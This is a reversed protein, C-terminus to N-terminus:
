HLIAFLCFLLTKPSVSVLTVQFWAMGKIDIKGPAPSYMPNKSLNSLSSLGSLSRGCYVTQLQRLYQLQRVKNIVVLKLAISGGGLLGSMGPLQRGEIKAEGVSIGVM